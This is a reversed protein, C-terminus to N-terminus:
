SSHSLEPIIKSKRHNSPIRQVRKPPLMRKCITGEYLDVMSFCSDYDNWDLRGHVLTFQRFLAPDLNKRIDPHHAARLFSEFDIEQEAGDTFWLHITYESIYEAQLIDIVSKPALKQRIM